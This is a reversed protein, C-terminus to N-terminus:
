GTACTKTVESKGNALPSLLGASELETLTVFIDLLSPRYTHVEVVGNVVSQLECELDDLNIERRVMVRLGRSAITADFFGERSRVYEFAKTVDSSVIELHRFGTQRVAPLSRLNSPSALALLKGLHLYGVLDCREVDETSHTSVFFTTGSAALTAILDWLARQAVPDIGATPEDLILVSPVHVLACALALRQKWGGSLHGAERGRYQQLGTIEIVTEKRTRAHAPSLRYLRSYFEINQEVTLFRYLSFQQSMYGITRRVQKPEAVVDLGNVFATGSTPLQLGCLMELESEARKRDARDMAIEEPRSGNELMKWASFREAAVAEAQEVESHRPGNLLQLLRAESKKLQCLLQEREADLESLDLEVIAQGTRVLSGEQVLVAKIRGGTRSAVPIEKAEITGTALLCPHVTVFHGFMAIGLVIAALLFCGCTARSLRYRRAAQTGAGSQEATTVRTGAVLGSQGSSKDGSATKFANCLGQKGSM